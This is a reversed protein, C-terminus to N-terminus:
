NYGGSGELFWNGILKGDVDYDIKGQIPEVTRPDKTEVTSRLDATYYPFPNDTYIKWVEGKYTAPNIFGKLPKQTNWVAFDLTQGGIHGILQGAKVQIPLHKDDIGSEVSTVLDYYYFFTCSVSFVLRIRGNSGNEPPHVEIGTIQADAMAYVPYKDKSSNFITPSFYQHDIPTVHGGVTLGYPILINFDNADMPLHTFTTTGSGKCYNNSLQEGAELASQGSPTATSVSSQNTTKSSKNSSYVKWGAFGVVAIIVILLFLGLHAIGSQSKSRNKVM